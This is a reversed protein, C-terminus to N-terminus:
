GAGSPLLSRSLPQPRPRGEAMHKLLVLINRSANVDRNMTMGNCSRNRCFLVGHVRVTQDEGDRWRGRRRVTGKCRKISHQNHMQQLCTHHLKSTRFEDIPVVTAYQKLRHELRKVPGAPARKIIGAQDRNSWDGFGILTRSGARATLEFCLEDLKRHAMVYRTFKLDRLKRRMSWSVLMDLRPLMFQVYGKWAELDATKKSPMNRVAELVVPDQSHWLKVKKATYKYKAEEYFRRTSWSITSGRENTACFLDRRGPDLGWREDFEELKPALAESATVKPKRMLISVAKGDTLIEGAFKRNDTEYKDVHFYYRWIDPAAKRFDAGDTPLFQVGARRLLGSLSNACIKLHSCTFGNKTPLLSFLKLGKKQEDTTTSLVKAELFTLFKYQLPMLLHPAKDLLRVARPPMMERYRLVVEDPGDYAEANIDKLAKYAQRGDMVYRAKLYRRFRGYFAASVSNQTNTEMQMSANQHWGSSLNRSDPKVYGDPKWSDYLEVSAALEADEIAKRAKAGQSVASLCGYYFQHTLHPVAKAESCLRTVHINALVYAEAITKNVEKLITELVDKIGDTFYPEQCFSNLTAKVASFSTERNLLKKAARDPRKVNRKAEKRPPANPASTSAKRKKPM